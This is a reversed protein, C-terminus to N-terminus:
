GGKSRRARLPVWGPHARNDLHIVEPEEGKERLSDLVVKLRQLKTPIGGAGLRVQVGAEGAYVTVGDQGDLHVESVPLARDLGAAAWDDLVGLASRLLPQVDARRQDYDQRTFGTVLPLDLGDGPEARRFVRGQRDFLWLAGLDVKAAAVNERVTVRLAPPSLRREVRAEAVWQQQRLAAEMADLDAALLNDGPRVPSLELLEEPTAQSLGHFDIARIRLTKGTTAERWAARGGVALLALLGLGAAVRAAGRARLSVAAAQAARDVRRRNRGRRM